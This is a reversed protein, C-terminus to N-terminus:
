DTDGVETLRRRVEESSVSKPVTRHIRGGYSDRSKLLFARLDQRVFATFHTDAELFVDVAKCNRRSEQIDALLSVANARAANRRESKAHLIVLPLILEFVFAFMNPCRVAGRILRFVSAMLNSSEPFTVIAKVVLDFVKGLQHANFSARSFRICQGLFDLVPTHHCQLQLIDCLADIAIPILDTMKWAFTESCLAALTQWAANLLHTDNARLYGAIKLMFKESEFQSRFVPNRLCTGVLSCLNAAKADECLNDFQGFVFLAFPSQLLTTQLRALQPTRSCISNFLDCVSLDSIFPLLQFLFGVSERM